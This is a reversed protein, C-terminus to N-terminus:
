KCYKQVFYRKVNDRAKLEGTRALYQAAVLDWMVSSIARYQVFDYLTPKHYQKAGPVRGGVRRQPAANTKSTATRVMRYWVYFLIIPLKAPCISMVQYRLSQTTIHNNLELPHDM